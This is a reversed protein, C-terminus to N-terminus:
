RVVRLSGELGVAMGFFTELPRKKPNGIEVLVVLIEKSLHQEM